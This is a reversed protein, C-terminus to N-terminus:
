SREPPPDYGVPRRDADREPPPTDLVFAAVGTSDTALLDYVIIAALQRISVEDRGAPKVRTVHEALGFVGRIAREARAVAVTPLGWDYAIRDTSDAAPRPEARDPGM